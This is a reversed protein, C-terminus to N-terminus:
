LRSRPVPWIWVEVETIQYICTVWMIKVQGEGIHPLYEPLEPAHTQVTPWWQRGRPPEPGPMMSHTGEPLEDFAIARDEDKYVGTGTYSVMATSASNLEGPRLEYVKGAKSPRYKLVRGGKSLESMLRTALLPVQPGWFKLAAEQSLPGSLGRNLPRPQGLPRGVLSDLAAATRLNSKHQATGAHWEDWKKGDCAPCPGAQKGWSDYVSATETMAKHDVNALALESFRFKELIDTSADAESDRQGKLESISHVGAEATIIERERLGPVFTRGTAEYIEKTKQLYSVQKERRRKPGRKNAPKSTSAPNERPKHTTLEEDGSGIGDSVADNTDEHGKGSLKRQSMIMDLVDSGRM